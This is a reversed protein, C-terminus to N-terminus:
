GITAEGESSVAIAEEDDDAEEDDAPSSTPGSGPVWPLVPLFAGHLLGEPPGPCSAAPGTISASEQGARDADTFVERFDEKSDAFADESADEETEAECTEKKEGRVGLYIYKCINSLINM